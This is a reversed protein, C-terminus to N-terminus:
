RSNKKTPRGNSMKDLPKMAHITEKVQRWYYLYTPENKRRNQVEVFCNKNSARLRELQKRVAWLSRGCHKGIQAPSVMADDDFPDEIALGVQAEKPADATGLTRTRGEAAPNTEPKNKQGLLGEAKLDAEIYGYFEDALGLNIIDPLLASNLYYFQTDRLEPTLVKVSSWIDLAVGILAYVLGKDKPWEYRLGRRQWPNHGPERKFELKVGQWGPETKMGLEVQALWYRRVREDALLRYYKECIARFREKKAEDCGTLWVRIRAKPKVTQNPDEAAHGGYADYTTHIRGADPGGRGNYDRRTRRAM